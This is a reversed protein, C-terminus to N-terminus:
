AWGRRGFFWFDFAQSGRKIHAAMEIEAEARVLLVGVTEGGPVGRFLDSVKTAMSVREGLGKAEFCM